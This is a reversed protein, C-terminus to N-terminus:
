MFGVELGKVPVYRRSGDPSVIMAIGSLYNVWRGTAYYKVNAHGDTAYALLPEVLYDHTCMFNVRKMNPLSALIEDKLLQESRYELEYFADDYAGTFAYKSYVTWGGGDSNIYLEARGSNMVYWSGEM